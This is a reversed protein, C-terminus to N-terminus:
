EGFSALTLTGRPTALTASIPAGSGPHHAFGLAQLAATDSGADLSLARLSVGSPPLSDAPHMAGWEILLPLAGHLRRAGDDPVAIRWRLEGAPTARSAELVRGAAIGRRALTALTADLNSCRTVWHM